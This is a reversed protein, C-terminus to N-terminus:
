RTLSPVEVYLTNLRYYLAGLFNGEEIRPLLPQASTSIVSTGGDAHELWNMLKYQDHLSLADIGHLVLTGGSGLGALPLSQDCSVSIVPRLLWPRLQELFIRTVIEPGVVMMSTHSTLAAEWPEATMLASTPWGGM